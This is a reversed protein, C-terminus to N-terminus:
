TRQEDGFVALGDDFAGIAAVVDVGFKAEAGHALHERGHCRQLENLGALKRQVCRDGPVKGVVRVLFHGRHGDLLQERVGAACPIDERGFVEIM